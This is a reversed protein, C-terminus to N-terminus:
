RDSLLSPGSVLQLHEDVYASATIPDGVNYEWLLDGKEQFSGWSDIIQAVFTIHFYHVALQVVNSLYLETLGQVSNIM